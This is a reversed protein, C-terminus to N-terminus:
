ILLRDIAFTHLSVMRCLMSFTVFSVSCECLCIMVYPPCVVCCMVDCLCCALFFCIATAAATEVM